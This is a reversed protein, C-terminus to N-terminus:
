KLVCTVERYHSLIAVGGAEECKLKNIAKRAEDARLEGEREENLKVLLFAFILIIIFFCLTKILTM